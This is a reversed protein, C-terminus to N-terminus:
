GTLVNAERNSRTPHKGPFYAISRTGRRNLRNQLIFGRSGCGATRTTLSRPRPCPVVRSQRWPFSCSHLVDVFSGNFGGGTHLSRVGSFGPGGFNSGFRVRQEFHPVAVSPRRRLESNRLRGYLGPLSLPLFVIEARRIRRRFLGLRGFKAGSRDPQKLLTATEFSRRCLEANGGRGYASPLSLPLRAIELRRIRTRGLAPRVFNAGLRNSKKLRSVVVLFNRCLEVNGDSGYATPFLLPSVATEARRTGRGYAPIRLFHFVPSTFEAHGSEREVLDM